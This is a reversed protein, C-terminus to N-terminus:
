RIRAPRLRPQGGYGPQGGAVDLSAARLGARWRIWAAFRRLGARWRLWAPWRLQRRPQVPDREDYRDGAQDGYHDQGDFADPGAYNGTNGYGGRRYGQDPGYPDLQEPPATRGYPDTQGGADNRGYPDTPGYRDQDEYGPQGYGDDHSGRVGYDGRSYGDQDYGRQRYGGPGYDSESGYDAPGYGAAQGYGGQGQYGDDAYQGPYSNLGTVPDDQPGRPDPVWPQEPRAPRPVPRRGGPVGYRDSDRAQDDDWHGNEDRSM